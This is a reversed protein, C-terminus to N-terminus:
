KTTQIRTSEGIGIRMTRHTRKRAIESEVKIHTGVSAGSRHAHWCKHWKSTRVLVQAGEIHTTGQQFGLDNIAINAFKM